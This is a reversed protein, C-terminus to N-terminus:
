APTDVAQSWIPKGLKRNVDNHRDIAYQKQGTSPIPHLEIIKVWESLCSCGYRPIMPRFERIEREPTLADKEAEAHWWAWAERGQAPLGVLLGEHRAKILSIARDRLPNSM